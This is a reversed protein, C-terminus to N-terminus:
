EERIDVIENDITWPIYVGWTSEFEDDSMSKLKSAVKSKVDYHTNLFDIADADDECITDTLYEELKNRYKTWEIMWDHEM